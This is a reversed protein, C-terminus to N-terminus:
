NYEVRARLESRYLMARAIVFTVLSAPAGPEFGPSDVIKMNM